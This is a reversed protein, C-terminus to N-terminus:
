FRGKTCEQKSNMMLADSSSHVNSFDLWYFSQFMQFLHLNTERMREKKSQKKISVFTLWLVITLVNIGKIFHGYTAQM